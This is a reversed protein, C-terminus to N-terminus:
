QHCYAGDLTESMIPPAFPSTLHLVLECNRILAQHFSAQPHGATCSGHTLPCGRSSVEVRRVAPRVMSRSSRCSRPAVSRGGSPPLGLIGDGRTIERVQYNPIPGHLRAQCRSRRRRCSRHRGRRLIGRAAPRSARPRSPPTALPQCASAAVAAWARWAAAPSAKRDRRSVQTM